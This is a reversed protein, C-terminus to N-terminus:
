LVLFVVVAPLAHLVERAPQPHPALAQVPLRLDATSGHAPSALSHLPCLLLHHPLRVTQTHFGSAIGAKDIPVNDSSPEGVVRDTRPDALFIYHCLSRIWIEATISIM